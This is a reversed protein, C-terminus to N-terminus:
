RLEKSSYGLIRRAVILTNIQGTGEYIDNIKADRMWKEVLWERSYGMPGLIEVAKQTIWTVAKGAKTKAMSAELSNREGHDLLSAARLTLLWAAKLQMEMELVDAQIASLEHYPTNYPIEIGAEALEAKVFELAARGVGIASAAILPRSADFTAMAGKFGQTSRKDPRVVEASGLINDYPIRADKLVISATDSARIGHKIEVKEVTVGPTGAEVVFPKMGARGASRDVTAWVVVIGNSEDLALKGNTCFIKEGNLVWENTGPDLTATTRIASTDSGAGPETMAMAGWVPDDGEAFRRLFREKQEPTGVAEIAAGALLSMPLCLYQGVDGWSLMEVTLTMRLNNIGPGSRKQAEGGEARAALKDLARKQQDRVVPWMMNIFTNPREHEREDLARSEPRMINEAVAEIMPLEQAIREPLEFSITM